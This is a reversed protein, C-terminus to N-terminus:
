AFLTLTAFDDYIDVAGWAGTHLHYAWLWRLPTDLLICILANLIGGHAVILATGGFHERRVQQYFRDARASLQALNEGGNPGYRVADMQWAAASAPYRRQVEDLTLGEWDGYDQEILRKDAIPSLNAHRSAIIVATERARQLPSTYIANLKVEALSRALVAAQVRGQRSLPSDTRGLFVWPQNAEAQGHRALILRLDPSIM